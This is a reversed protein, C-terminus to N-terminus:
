QRDLRALVENVQRAVAGELRALIRRGRNYHGDKVIRIVGTCIDASQGAIAALANDIM